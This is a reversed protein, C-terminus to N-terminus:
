SQYQTRWTSAGDWGGVVGHILLVAEGRGSECYEIRGWPTRVVCVDFRGLRAVARAMDRRYWLGLSLAAALAGLARTRSTVQRRARSRRRARASSGGAGSTTM